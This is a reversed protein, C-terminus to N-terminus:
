LKKQKKQTLTEFALFILFIGTGSLFFGGSLLGSGGSDTSPRFNVDPLSLVAPLKVMWTAANLSAFRASTFTASSLRFPYGAYRVVAVTGLLPVQYRILIPLKLSLVSAERISSRSFLSFILPIITCCYPDPTVIRPDPAM